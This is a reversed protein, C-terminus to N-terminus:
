EDRQEKRLETAEVIAALLTAAEVGCPLGYWWSVDYSGIGLKSLTYDYGDALLTELAEGLAAAERNRNVCKSM